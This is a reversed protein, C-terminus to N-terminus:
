HARALRWRLFFLFSYFFVCGPFSLDFMRGFDECVPFFSGTGHVWTNRAQIKRVTLRESTSPKDTLTLSNKAKFTKDVAGCWSLVILCRWLSICTHFSKQFLVIGLGCRMLIRRLYFREWTADWSFEGSIFSYGPWMEDFSEQYLLTGLDSRMLVRRVYFHAWTVYWWFEESVSTYGPWMDDFVESMSTYWPWMEDFSKQCLLTGLDCRMLVRRVCFHVWTVDWWVRRVYTYGPWMEDFSKQCLLTGPDCRMLVRRIYFHVRTVNWWFGGSISNYRSWLEGFSEQYLVTGPDCRM